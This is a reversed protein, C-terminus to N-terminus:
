TSRATVMPIMARLSLIAIISKDSIISRANLLTPFTAPLVLSFFLALLM